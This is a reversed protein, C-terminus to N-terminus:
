RGSLLVDESATSKQLELIRRRGHVDTLLDRHARLVNAPATLFSIPTGSPLVLRESSSEEESCSPDSPRAPLTPMRVGLRELARWFVRGLGNELLAGYFDFMVTPFLRHHEDRILTALAEDFASSGDEIALKGPMFRLDGASVSEVGSMLLFGLAYGAYRLNTFNKRMVLSFTQAALIENTSDGPQATPVFLYLTSLARLQLDIIEGDRWPSDLCEFAGWRDMHAVLKAFGIRPKAQQILALYVACAAPPTRIETKWASVFTEVALLFTPRVAARARSLRELTRVHGAPGGLRAFAQDRYGLRMQEFETNQLTEEDSSSRNFLNVVYIIDGCM